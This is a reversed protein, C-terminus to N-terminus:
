PQCIVEMVIYSSWTQSTDQDYTLSWTYLSAAWLYFNIYNWSDKISDRNISANTKDSKQNHSM